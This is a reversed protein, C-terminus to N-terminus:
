IWHSSTHPLPWLCKVEDGTWYTASLLVQMMMESQWSPPHYLPEPRRQIKGCIFGHSVSSAAPHFMSPSCFRSLTNLWDSNKQACGRGWSILFRFGGGGRYNSLKKWWTFETSICQPKESYVSFNFNRHHLLPQHSFVSISGSELVLFVRFGDSGYIRLLGWYSQSM